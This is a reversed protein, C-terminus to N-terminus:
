SLRRRRSRRRWTWGPSSARPRSSSRGGALTKSGSHTPEELM